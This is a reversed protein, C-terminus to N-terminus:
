PAMKHRGFSNCRWIVRNIALIRCYKLVRAFFDLNFVVKTEAIKKKGNISVERRLKYAFCIMKTKKECVFPKCLRGRNNCNKLFKKQLVFNQNDLRMGSKRNCVM